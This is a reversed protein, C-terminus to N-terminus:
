KEIDCRRFWGGVVNELEIDTLLPGVTNNNDTTKM